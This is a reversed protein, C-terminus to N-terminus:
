FNIMGASRLAELINEVRIQTILVTALATILTTIFYGFVPIFPYDWLDYPIGLIGPRIRMYFMKVAKTFCYWTIGLTAFIIGTLYALNYLILMIVSKDM